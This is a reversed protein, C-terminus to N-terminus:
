FMATRSKRWVLFYNEELGPVYVEQDLIFGAERVERCFTAKGARVHELVWGKPHSWIRDDNRYFDIFIMKGGPSLIRQMESLMAKPYTFHHYVDCVFIVDVQGKEKIPISDESSKLVKVNPLDGYTDEM